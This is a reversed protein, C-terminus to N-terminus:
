VPWSEGPADLWASQGEADVSLGFREHGPSGVGEWWAYASEVEDWLRRPGSQYVTTERWGERFFACAWSMDDLGYFWVPRAGERQPAVSHTCQAVRLGVAFSGAAFKDGAFVEEPLSTLSKDAGQVGAPVYANHGAFPLRQSRLKMFEVPGTFHGSASAGDDSVTLRAIADQNSFHTGWPAVIVGGPVAQEVWAFPIERLGVTAIVRDYPAGAEYGEFGDGTIVTVPLRARGLATRAAAAVAPDVEVSVVQSLGLRVGLLAANYGTGTGIELVRDGLRVELDRLMSFVVSPMSVSSTPVDGPEPGQHRGDDWQTVIPVNDEAYRRWLEPDEARDVAVTRATVMDYPWILEPLFASRQVFAYSPLWDSDLAGSKLLSRGLESREGHNESDM